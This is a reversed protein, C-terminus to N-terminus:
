LRGGGGCDSLRMSIPYLSEWVWIEPGKEGKRAEVCRPQRYIAASGASYHGPMMSGLTSYHSKKSKVGKEFKMSLVGKQSNHSIE